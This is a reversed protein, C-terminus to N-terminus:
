RVAIIYFVFLLIIKVAMLLPVIGLLASLFDRYDIGWAITAYKFPSDYYLIIYVFVIAFICNYSIRRYSFLRKLWKVYLFLLVLCTPINLLWNHNFQLYVWDMCETARAPILRCLEPAIGMWVCALLAIFLCWKIEYASVRLQEKITSNVVKLAHENM